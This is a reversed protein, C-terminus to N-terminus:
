NLGGWLPPVSASTAVLTLSGGQMPSRGNVGHCTPQLHTHAVCDAAQYQFPDLRDRAMQMLSILGFMIETINWSPLVLLLRALRGATIVGMSKMRGGDMLGM